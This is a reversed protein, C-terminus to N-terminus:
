SGGLGVVGITGGGYGTATAGSEPSDRLEIVHSGSALTSTLGFTALGDTMQQNPAGSQVVQSGPVATGDVFLAFAKSCFSAGCTLMANWRAVVFLRAASPLSVNLTAVHYNTTYSYSNPYSAAFGFTPGIDGKLGTDGTDGKDGKEGKEGQPGAAGTDGKPGVVVPVVSAPLKGTKGLAVLAGPRPKKSAHFGDVKDANVVKKVAHVADGAYGSSGLAVFLALIAILYAGAVPIRTRM